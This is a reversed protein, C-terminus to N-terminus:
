PMHFCVKSANSVCRQCLRTVEARRWMRTAAHRVCVVQGVTPMDSITTAIQNDCWHNLAFMYNDFHELDSISGSVISYHLIVHLWDEM